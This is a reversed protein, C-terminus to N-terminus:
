RSITENWRTGVPSRARRSRGDCESQNSAWAGTPQRAAPERFSAASEAAPLKAVTGAVCVQRELEAWFFTLAAHPITRWSADKAATTIQSFFSAADTWRAKLFVNRSSPRGAKDVTALAMANVDAPHPQRSIAHWLKFLAIGIKRWRGGASAVAFWRDFQKSRIWTWTRGACNARRSVDRRADALAM